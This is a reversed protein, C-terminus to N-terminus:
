SEAGPLEYRTVTMEDGDLDIEIVENILLDDPLGTVSDRELHRRAARM